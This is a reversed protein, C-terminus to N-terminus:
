FYFIFFLFRNKCLLFWCPVLQRKLHLVVGSSGLFLSLVSKFSFGSSFFLFFFLYFFCFIQELLHQNFNHNFCLVNFFFLSQLNLHFFLYFGCFLLLFPLVM